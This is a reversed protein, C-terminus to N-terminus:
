GFAAAVLAYCVALGLAVLASVQAGLGIRVDRAKSDNLQRLEQAARIRAYAVVSRADQNSDNWRTTRLTELVEPKVVHVKVLRNARLGALAAACFLILVRSSYCCCPM